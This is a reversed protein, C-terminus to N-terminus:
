FHKMLKLGLEYSTNKPEFVSPVGGVESQAVNWYSLTPGVSWDDFRMMAGLRLGYGKPQDLRVNQKTPNEDSLRAQQVGKILHLYELTTLLQSSNSLKMKHTLGIPLALYSSDRRYGQRADSTRLDNHLYRFGLGVYPALVYNGLDFDKGVLARAELYWNPTDNLTGSQASQYDAKGLAYRLDGRVFWSQDTNPWNTGLSQTRSLEFGALAATLSMYSPEDYKYHSLTVGVSNESKSMLDVSQAHVANVSLLAGFIPLWITKM